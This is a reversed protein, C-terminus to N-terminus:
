SRFVVVYRCRPRSSHSIALALPGYSSATPLGGMGSSNGLWTRSRNAKARPCWRLTARERGDLVLDAAVDDPLAHRAVLEDKLKESVMTVMREAISVPLTARNIMPAQLKESDGFRDLARGLAPEALDAGPNSVVAVVVDETGEDVLADAVGSSVHPRRAIAIQKAEDGGRIVEILDVDSLVTANTLVPNAVSAIDSALTKAVDPPLDPNAAVTKSLTERVQREVDAALSRVIEQAVQKEATTLGAIDLAAGISSAVEARTESNPNSGLKAALERTPLVGGTTM